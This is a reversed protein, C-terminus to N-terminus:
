LAEQLGNCVHMCLCVNLHTLSAMLHVFYSYICTTVDKGKEKLNM